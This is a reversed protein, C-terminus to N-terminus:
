YANRHQKQGRKPNFYTHAFMIAECHYIRTVNRSAADGRLFGGEGGRFLDGGFRLASEGTRRRGSGDGTLRPSLLGPDGILLREGDGGLLCLDGIRHTTKVKM